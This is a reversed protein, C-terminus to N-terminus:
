KGMPNRSGAEMKAIASNARNKTVQDVHPRSALDTWIAMGLGKMTHEVRELARVIMDFGRLVVVILVGGFGYQAVLPGYDTAVQAITETTM